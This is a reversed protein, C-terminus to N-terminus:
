KGGPACVPRCKVCRPHWCHLFWWSLDDIHRSFYRFLHLMALRLCSNWKKYSIVRCPQNLVSAEGQSKKKRFDFLLIDWNSDIDNCCNSTQMVQKLYSMEEMADRRASFLLGSAQYCGSALNCRIQGGSDRRRLTEEHWFLEPLSPILKGRCVLLSRRDWRVCVRKKQLPIVIILPLSVLVGPLWNDCQPSKSLTELLCHEAHFVCLCGCARRSSAGVCVRPRASPPSSRSTYFHAFVHASVCLRRVYLWVLPHNDACTCLLSLVRSRRFTARKGQFGAPGLRGSSTRQMDIWANM